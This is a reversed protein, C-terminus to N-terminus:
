EEAGADIEGVEWEGAVDWRSGQAAASVYKVFKLVGQDRLVLLLTNFSPQSVILTGDDDTDTGDDSKQKTNSRYVAPDDEGEHPAM